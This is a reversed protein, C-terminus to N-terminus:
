IIFTDDLFGTLILLLHYKWEMLVEEDLDASEGSISKFVINNRHCFKKLCGNNACFHKEGIAEANQIAKEKWLIRSLPINKIKRM